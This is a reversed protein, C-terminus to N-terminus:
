KIHYADLCILLCIRGKDNRIEEHKRDRERRHHEVIWNWVQNFEKKPKPVKQKLNWEWLKVKRQDDTFNLWNNANRYYFSTGLIVLGNHRGEGEGLRANELWRIYEERNGKEDSVYNASFSDIMAELRRLQMEDSIAIKDTGLPAYQSGSKNM